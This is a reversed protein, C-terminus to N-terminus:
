SNKVKLKLKMFFSSGSFRQMPVWVEKKDENQHVFVYVIVKHKKNTGKFFKRTCSEKHIYM